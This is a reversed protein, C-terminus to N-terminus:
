LAAVRLTSHVMKRQAVVARFADSILQTFRTSTRRFCCLLSRSWCVPRIGLHCNYFCAILCVVDMVGWQPWSLMAWVLKMVFGLDWTAPYLHGFYDNPILWLIEIGATSTPNWHDPVPADRISPSIGLKCKQVFWCSSLSRFGQFRDHGALLAFVKAAAALFDLLSIRWLGIRRFPQGSCCPFFEYCFLFWTEFIRLTKPM